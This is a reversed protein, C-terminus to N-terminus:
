VVELITNIKKPNATGLGMKEAQIIHKISYLEKLPDKVGELKFLELAAIADAAVADKSVIIMNAKVMEGHSPGTFAMVDLADVVTIDPKFVTNLDVICQHLGLIHFKGKETDPIIGMMNKLSITVGAEIHRKLKPISIIVDAEYALRYVRVTKLKLGYTEVTVIDETKKLDVIDVNYKRAISYLGTVEFNYSTDSGRVASEAIVIRRPNYEKVVRVVAEVVKPNTNAEVYSFGVNPKILITSDPRIIDSLGGLVNFARRVMLEINRKPSKVIVVRPEVIGRISRRPKLVKGKFFPLLSVIVDLGTLAVVRSLRGYNLKLM